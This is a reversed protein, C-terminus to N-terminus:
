HAPIAHKFAIGAICVSPIGSAGYHGNKTRILAADALTSYDVATTVFEVIRRIPLRGASALKRPM